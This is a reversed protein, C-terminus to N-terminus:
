WTNNSSTADFIAPPPLASALSKRGLRRVVTYAYSLTGFVTMAFIIAGVSFLALPSM